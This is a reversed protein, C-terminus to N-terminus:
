IMATLQKPWMTIAMVLSLRNYFFFDIHSSTPVSLFESCVKLFNNTVPKGRQQFFEEALDIVTQDIEVVDIKITPFYHRILLPWIGGGLGIILIRSPKSNCLFSTFFLRIYIDNPRFPQRLNLGSQWNMWGDDGFYLILLDDDTRAVIVDYTDISSQRKALIFRPSEIGYHVILRKSASGCWDSRIQFTDHHLALSCPYLYNYGVFDVGPLIFSM